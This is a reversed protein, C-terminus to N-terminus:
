NHLQCAAGTPLCLYCQLAHMSHVAFLMAHAATSASYSIVVDIAIVVYTSLTPLTFCAECTSQYCEITPAPLDVISLSRTMAHPMQKVLAITTLLCTYLASRKIFVGRPVLNPHWTQLSGSLLKTRALEGTRACQWDLCALWCASVATAFLTSSSPIQLPGTRNFSIWLSAFVLTAMCCAHHPIFHACCSLQQGSQRYCCFVGFM